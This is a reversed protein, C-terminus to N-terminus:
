QKVKGFNTGLVILDNGDVRGDRNIDAEGGTSSGFAIGLRGLDFGDVRGDGQGSKSNIDAPTYVFATPSITSENGLNDVAEVSLYLTKGFQDSSIEGSTYSATTGTSTWNLIDTGGSTTGIAVRYEKLGATTDSLSTWSAVIKSYSYYTQGSIAVASDLSITPTVGPGPGPATTDVTFSVEASGTNGALDTAEVRVTHPGDTLSDLNNGSVKNVIIGDVKVVTTGDSVSFTLTPTKNNTIGTAPSSITVTPPITDLTISSTSTAINGVTDTATVTVNNVGEMLGTITYSWTTGTVAAAGDSANTDTAVSVTSGAEVTGTITQSNIKTPTSVPDIIIATVLTDVTFTVEAFGTNGALDTAEVRVTHSGDSLTDLNNGSVKSVIVGDVKVVVTGDSVTYTLTPTSNNTIGTAPSSITVTPPISDYTISANAAASNTAADTATVTIGNAGEVLDTIACSWATSSPYSVTGATATTSTVAITAGSERAGSITQSNINTPSTVTDISVTPPITDVTFTVEAYETNGALDISEVRVTHSGETLADLSDESVKSVKNGDVKVTVTGDSVTYNLLPTNDNAFGSSPSTINVSPPVTDLTISDSYASSINGAADMFQVYITKTGDGSNLRFSKSEAYDEWGKWSLGDTSFIMKTVGSGTDFASLTLNVALINTYVADNNVTVSGTPAISDITYVETKVSEKNSNQDISYFKLTTTTTISVPATYIESPTSGDISYYTTGAESATLTVTQPANYLGGAPSSTTVPPTVDLNYIETKISEINGASDVAFFKLTTNTAIYIPVSYKSSATTPSTGDTTYYITATESATLTVSQSSSYNGGPPTATTVPPTKDVTVSVGAGPTEVNGAMDTARSKITYSGDSPLTWS